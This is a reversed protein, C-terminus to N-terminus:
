QGPKTTEAAAWAVEVQWGVEEYFSRIVTEAAAKAQALNDEAGAARAVLKQAECMVQDRLKDADGSWPVWGTKKVEWTRTRQHDVRSQLVAPGPLCISARRTQEDKEVIRAQRLDLGILADGKILWAGCHGEGEGILFDAVCVRMTVLQSLRDLRQLTPGQSQITIAPPPPNLRPMLAISLAFAALLLCLIIRM